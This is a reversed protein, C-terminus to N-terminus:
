LRDVEQHVEEYFKEPLFVFYSKFKLDVIRTLTEKDVYNSQKTLVEKSIYQIQMAWLDLKVKKSAAYLSKEEDSLTRMPEDKRRIPKGAVEEFYVSSKNTYVELIKQAVTDELIQASLNSLSVINLLFVIKILKM